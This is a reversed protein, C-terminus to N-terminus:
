PIFLLSSSVAGHIDLGVCHSIMTHSDELLTGSLFKFFNIQNKMDKLRIAM